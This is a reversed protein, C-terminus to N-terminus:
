NWCIHNCVGIYTSYHVYTCYACMCIIIPLTQGDSDFHFKFGNMKFIDLNDMVINEAVSTLGLM